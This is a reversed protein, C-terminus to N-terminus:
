IPSVSAASMAGAAGVADAASRCDTPLRRAFTPILRNPEAGNTVDDPGGVAGDCCSAIGVGGCVPCPYAASLLLSGTGDCTECRMM